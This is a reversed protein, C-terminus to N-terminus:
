ELLKNNLVEDRLMPCPKYREERTELFLNELLTLLNEQGLLNVMEFPGKPYNTGLKMAIDIDEKTATGEMVTFYAENMIMGFVRGSVLGVRDLVGLPEIGLEALRDLHSKSNSTDPMGIEWVERSLFGGLGLFGFVSKLLEPRGQIQTLSSGHITNLGLLSVSNSLYPIVPDPVRRLEEFLFLIDFSSNSGMLEDWDM